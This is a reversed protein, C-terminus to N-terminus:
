RTWRGRGVRTCMGKAIHAAAHMPGTYVPQTSAQQIQQAMSQQTTVSTSTSQKQQQLQNYAQYAAQVGQM